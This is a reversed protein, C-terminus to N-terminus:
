RTSGVLGAYLRELRDAHRELTYHALARERAAKGRARWQEPERWVDLFHAALADPEEEVLAGTRGDAVIEPLLERRSAITPIGMAMAELVARCSGDSGPVLFVLADCLALVDVYDDRRFGAQIVSRGLGLARVADARFAWTPHPVPCEVFAERAMDEHTVLANVWDTYIRYGEALGGERFSEVQCGVLALAPDTALAELQLAFRDPHVADDADTRAVIPARAHELGTNLAAVIGRRETRVVRVDYAELLDAYAADISRATTSRSRRM